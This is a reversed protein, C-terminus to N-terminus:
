RDMERYNGPQIHQTGPPVELVHRWPDIIVRAKTDSLDKFENLPLTVVLVDASKWIADRNDRYLPLLPDYGIALDGLYKLLDIGTAETIVVTDQKYTLGLIGVLDGPHRNTEITDILSVLVYRNTAITAEPLLTLVGRQCAYRMLAKNDRPFCPGGFGLGSTLYMKGIRRDAGIADTIQDVYGGPTAEALMGVMNAFSIKMTVYCNILLKALEASALSMRHVQPYYARTKSYFMKRYFNDLVAGATSDSEGILVLDPMDLGKLVLGLAIFEPNYCMGWDPGCRKGSITEIEAALSETDGPNVTSVLVVLKYPIAHALAFGIKQTVSKVYELSFAGTALSPTPVVIFVIGSDYV